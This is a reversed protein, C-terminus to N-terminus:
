MTGREKAIKIVDDKLILTVLGMKEGKLRGTKIWRRITARNVLSLRSAQGITVYVDSLTRQKHNNTIGQSINPISYITM